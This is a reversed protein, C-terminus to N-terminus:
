VSEEKEIPLGTEAHFGDHIMKVAARVVDADFQKGAGKELEELIQNRPMGDRYVRAINMADYADAVGIIRACYPIADGSLGQGYGSGDIREHHYRAGDCIGPLSKFERLIDGGITPHQRMVTFEEETLKDPKNLISDPIGIKGIDHVLAIYFINEQEEESSGLRRALERSYYAVRISHGNTYPDKADIARAITKLAEDTISRYEIQRKRLRRTEADLYIKMLIGLGLLLLAFIIWYGWYGKLFEDQRYSLLSGAAGTLASLLCM